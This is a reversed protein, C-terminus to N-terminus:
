RVSHCFPLFHERVWPVGVFVFLGVRTSSPPLMQASGQLVPLFSVRHGMLCPSGEGLGRRERAAVPNFCLQAATINKKLFENQALM